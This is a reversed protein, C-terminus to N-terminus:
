PEQSLEDLFTEINRIPCPHTTYAMWVETLLMYRARALRPSLEAWWQELREATIESWEDVVVLPYGAERLAAYAAARPRQVIPITLVLIAEWVKPSQIGGGTPSMAFKNRSLVRHYDQRPILTRNVLPTSEIWESAAIRSQVMNDLKPWAAGWAALVGSKGELTAASAIKLLNAAVVGGEALSYTETLPIPSPRVGEMAVDMAEYAISAFYRSGVIEKLLGPNARVEKQCFCGLKAWLGGRRKKMGCCKQRFESDPAVDWGSNHEDSQAIVLARGRKAGVPCVVADTSPCTPTAGSAAARSCAGPAGTDGGGVHRCTVGEVACPAACARQQEQIMKWVARLSGPQADSLVTDPDRAVNRKFAGRWVVWEFREEHRLPRAHMFLRVFGQGTFNTAALAHQFGSRLLQRTPGPVRARTPCSTALTPDPAWKNYTGPAWAPTLLHRPAAATTPPEQQGPQRAKLGGAAALSRSADTPFGGRAHETWHTEWINICVVAFFLFVMAALMFGNLALRGADHPRAAM